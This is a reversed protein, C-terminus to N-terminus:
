NAEQIRMRLETLRIRIRPELDKNNTLIWLFKLFFNLM